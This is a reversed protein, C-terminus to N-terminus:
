EVVVDYDLAGNIMYRSSLNYRFDFFSKVRAEGPLVTTATALLSDARYFREQQLKCIRTM